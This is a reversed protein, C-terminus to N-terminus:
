NWHKLEPWIETLPRKLGRCLYIPRNEEGMGWRHSHEGLKEVSECYESLDEPDWQLWILNKGKFSQPGWFYHTQHACLAHPLGREPGFLHLAGAEGYNSAFIGTQARVDPPLANYAKVVDDTLEVWGFQDSLRQELPGDHRVESRRPAIGLRQHLALLKEPPLIPLVLYADFVTLALLFMVLAARAFRRPVSSGNLAREISVGAAAFLMPYVPTVYYNKGHMAVMIAFLSVFTLGLVRAQKLRGFLLSLLGWFWIPFLFPHMVMIQDAIFALPTRVVNKGSRKVNALDELTPFGHTYQWVLNPAFIAFAIAGGIWIWPKLFERRLPTLLMAIVVAVGFFLTSHKNMLGIGCLVGFLLWLKSNGTRAICAVVFAAATWILQEFVNMTLISGSGLIMPVATLSIGAIVQAFRNGGLERAVLM